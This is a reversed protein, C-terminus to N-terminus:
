SERKLYFNIRLDQTSNLESTKLEHDDFDILCIQELYSTIKCAFFNSLYSCKLKFNVVITELFALNLKNAM